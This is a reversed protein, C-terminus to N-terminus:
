IELILELTLSLDLLLQSHSLPILQINKLQRLHDMSHKIAMELLISIVDQKIANLIVLLELVNSVELPQALILQLLMPGNIQKGFILNLAALDM